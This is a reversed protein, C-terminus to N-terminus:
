SQPSAMPLSVLGLREAGGIGRTVDALTFGNLYDVFGRVAGDLVKRLECGGHLPCPQPALCDVLELGPETRLVVDGLRINASPLALKVGGGRGRLTKVLGIKGLHHVVKVLHNEPVGYARAMTSINASKDQPLWALYILVRLSLDTFRTLQM